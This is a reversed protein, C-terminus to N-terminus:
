EDAARLGGRGIALSEAENSYKPNFGFSIIFCLFHIDLYPGYPIHTKGTYLRRPELHIGFSLWGAWQWQIMWWKGAKIHWEM